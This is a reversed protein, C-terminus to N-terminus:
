RPPQSPNKELLEIANPNSSLGFWELKTEDIWDLLVYFDPREPM